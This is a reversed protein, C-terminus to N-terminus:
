KKLVTKVSVIQVSFYTMPSQFVCCMLSWKAKEELHIKKEKERVWNNM